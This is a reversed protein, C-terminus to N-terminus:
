AAIDFHALLAAEDSYLQGTSTKRIPTGPENALVKRVWTESRGVREAIKKAGWIIRGDTPGLARDFRTPTLTVAKTM